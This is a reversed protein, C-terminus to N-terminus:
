NRTIKMTQLQTGVKVNLFYVGKSERSLDLTLENATFSEMIRVIRGTVDTVTMQDVATEKGFSVTMIGTTPNPFLVVELAATEDMGVVNYNVCSSMGSCGNPATVQVAYSGNVAPIFTQNTAGPVPANGNNCDVWQYVGGNQSSSLVGAVLTTNTNVNNQVITISTCTGGSVCGGEGRVYYTGPASVLLSSGTGTPTGGCSGTYWHWDAADNLTGSITLLTNSGACFSTTGNITPTTPADCPTYCIELGWSALSGGDQNAADSITLTWTGSMNEGNFVSLAEQPQYTNGDAPPCPLTSSAAQDDFEVDFDNEDDCVQDWLTVTTGSPSTLTVTLDSIWSHTGALNVVNLDNITGGAPINLTSTVTPTGVSSITVPVNASNFISCSATTFSFVSSNGASSCSNYSNVRWYYTTAPDLLTATYSATTLGTASEVINMFAADTAIQIDYLTGANPNTWSLAVPTAVSPDTDVPATLTSVVSSNSSVLLTASAMHTGSTSNGTVTFPYTGPTVGATGSVTLTSTTGPTAPNPSFSGTAGAPLGTTGLTVPDSYAGIQGVQVSFVANSGQCASISNNTISLTYDNTAATIAFVNNSVDFFTGNACQVLIIANSTTVNPVTVDQSGDNPVDNAITTFTVGGDTSIIVDVNACSVPAANTNAVAWTVTQTSNGPWTIGSASPYNVIFPGAATTTTITIDEQDNCGGGAHNDRVMVRFHMTRSVSPLVEWTYPGGALLSPISPFYRTPSASPTKSRFNPGGTATAVPPQTSAQNDMQEWCYTLPDGETDTAIATLAFPTNAPITVNGVTGTINPPTNVPSIATVVPCTHGAGTIFTGIEQLSIGHFHDDSNSQVDMGTCIGAYAMITSGSGPEMATSSNGNGSCAGATGNFTHNGAFQHGMEHAVYDIDFPDGVPSASGTVGRAKQSNTCVVGLGALGGSNTGFVHGIDYNTSGINTNVYTQNENIMTGPDGNSFPDSGSNTFILINNNPIITMTIAMDRMYVGNVRNMTTVQAAQALVVTGGQFTTYEGTASLALRYTRKQCDGFSKVLSNELEEIQTPNSPGDFRCQFSKNSVFDEKAYVIYHEIDGGGFSYPDIYTTSKDPYLIMAHFGQPTLDLKVMEGSGDTPIGDFARIEPFQTALGESMTTNEHVQYVAFTGDAKPLEIFVPVYAPDTIRKAADLKERIGPVDLKFTIYKTPTIYRTGVVPIASEQIKRWPGKEQKEQAHLSLSGSAILLIAGALRLTKKM